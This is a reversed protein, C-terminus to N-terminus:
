LAVELFWYGFEGETNEKKKIGKFMEFGFMKAIFRERYHNIGPVGLIYQFEKGRKKKAFILHRYSYYGHLLFSNNALIWAQMPFIGIDQPEIRVCDIIEVDEFPHMKPYRSFIRQVAEESEQNGQFMEQKEVVSAKEVIEEKEELQVQKCKEEWESALKTLQRIRAKLIQIERKIEEKEEESECSKFDGLCEIVAQPMQIDAPSQHEEETNLELENKREYDAAVVNNDADLFSYFIKNKENKENEAFSDNDNHASQRPVSNNEMKEKHDVINKETKDFEVQFVSPLPDDIHKAAMKIEKIYIPKDDWETGFYKNETLYVIIGGMKNLSFGSDMINDTKTTIRLDGNGSKIDMDGLYICRIDDNERLFIYAAIRDENLSLVKIHITIKCQSSRTEIRSYGINHNKVHNEYNYM